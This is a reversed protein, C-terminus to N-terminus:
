VCRPVAACADAAAAVYENRMTFHRKQIVHRFKGSESVRFHVPMMGTTRCNIALSATLDQVDFPFGKLEMPEMFTGEFRAVLILDNGQCSSPRLLRPHPAPQPAYM